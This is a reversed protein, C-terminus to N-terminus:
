RPEEGVLKSACENKKKDSNLKIRAKIAKVVAPIGISQSRVMENQLQNSLISVIFSDM